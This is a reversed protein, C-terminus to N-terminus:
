AGSINLNYRQSVFIFIEWLWRSANSLYLKKEMACCPLLSVRRMLDLLYKIRRTYPAILNPFHGRLKIM